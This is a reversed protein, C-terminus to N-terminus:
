EVSARFDENKQANWARLGAELDGPVRMGPGKTRIKAKAIKEPLEYNFLAVKEEKKRLATEVLSLREKIFDDENTLTRPQQEFWNECVTLM